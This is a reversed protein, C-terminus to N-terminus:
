PEINSGRRRREAAGARVSPEAHHALLLRGHAGRALVVAGVPRLACHVVVSGVETETGKSPPPFEALFTRGIFYM